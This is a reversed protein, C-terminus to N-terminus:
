FAFAPLQSMRGRAATVSWTRALIARQEPGQAATLRPRCDAHRSDVPRRSRKARAPHGNSFGPGPERVQRVHRPCPHGLYLLAPATAPHGALALRPPRERQNSEKSRAGQGGGKPGAAGNAGTGSTRTAVCLSLLEPGRLPVFAKAKVKARAQRKENRARVAFPM